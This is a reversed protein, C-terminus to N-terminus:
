YFFFFIRECTNEISLLKGEKQRFFFNIL